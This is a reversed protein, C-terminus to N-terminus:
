NLEPRFGATDEQTHRPAKQTSEGWQCLSIFVQGVLMLSLTPDSSPVEALSGRCHQQACPCGSTRWGMRLAAPVAKKPCLHTAVQSQQPLHAGVALEGAKWSGLWSAPFLGM